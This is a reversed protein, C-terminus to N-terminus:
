TGAEERWYGLAEHTPVDNVQFLLAEEDFRNAHATWAWPAVTFFDGASWDFTQEGVQTSGQGRVVYYLQSGTQRRRRGAFGPRILQLRLGLTRMAPSGDLPNRYELVVDDFPDAALGAAQRLAGQAMAASYVLM